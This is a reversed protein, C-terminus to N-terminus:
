ACGIMKEHQPKEVVVRPTPPPPPEQAYELVIRATDTSLFLTVITEQNMLEKMQQREPPLLYMDASDSLVNCPICCSFVLHVKNEAPLDCCTLQAVRACVGEGRCYCGNFLCLEIMSGILGVCAVLPCTLPSLLCTIPRIILRRTETKDKLIGMEREFREVQKLYEPKAIKPTQESEFSSSEFPYDPNLPELLSPTFM